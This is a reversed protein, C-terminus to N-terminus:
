SRWRQVSNPNLGTRMFAEVLAPPGTFQLFADLLSLSVVLGVLAIGVRRHINRRISALM